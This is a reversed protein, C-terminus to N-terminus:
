NAIINKIWDLNGSVRTHRYQGNVSAKPCNPTNYSIIGIVTTLDSTLVIPGGADGYCNQQGEDSNTCFQTKTDFVNCRASDVVLATGKKLNNSLLYNVPDYFGWGYYTVAAGVAPNTDSATTPLNMIKIKNSLTADKTLKVLALDNNRYKKNYGVPVQVSNVDGEIIETGDESVDDKKLDGLTITMTKIEHNKTDSKPIRVCHGATM